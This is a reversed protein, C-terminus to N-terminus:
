KHLEVCIFIMTRIQIIIVFQGMAGGSSRKMGRRERSVGAVREKDVCDVTWLRDERTM